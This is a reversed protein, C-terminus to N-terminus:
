LRRPAGVDALAIDLGLDAALMEEGVLRKVEVLIRWPRAERGQGIGRSPNEGTSFIISRNESL